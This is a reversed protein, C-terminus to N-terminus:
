KARRRLVGEVDELNFQRQRLLILYHYLLDAAENLFQEDNDDMAEIVLEVAEEGVKQAVKNVGQELLRSTYSGASPEAERRAITDQLRYVFGKNSGDGFCTRTGKHCAPGNPNVRMLLTDKDCDLVMEQVRLFHGSQEGKTWLRNKSRSFFTANGSQVTERFAEANVYALMLVEGSLYDQVVAPILGDSKDFDMQDIWSLYTASLAMM